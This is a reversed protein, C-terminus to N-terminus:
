YRGLRHRTHLKKERERERESRGPHLCMQREEVEGLSKKLKINVEGKFFKENKKFYM